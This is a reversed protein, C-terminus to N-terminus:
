QESTATKVTPPFFREDERWPGWQRARIGNAIADSSPWKSMKRPKFTKYFERIPWGNKKYEPHGETLGLTDWVGEETQWDFVRGNKTEIWAHPGQLGKINGHVVLDNRGAKDLAYKFCMGCPIATKGFYAEELAKQDPTLM